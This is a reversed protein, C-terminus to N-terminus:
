VDRSKKGGAATSALHMALGSESPAPPLWPVPPEEMGCGTLEHVSFVPQTGAEMVMKRYM